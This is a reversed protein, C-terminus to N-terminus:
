FNYVYNFGGFREHESDQELFPTQSQFFFTLKHRNYSLEMGSYFIPNFRNEEIDYGQNQAEDIIYSYAVASANVSVSWAVGLGKNIKDIVLMSADEKLYPYHLNFNTIYNYGIRFTSGAFADVLFNGAQFGIHNFWDIHWKNALKKQWTIDGYRYLINASYSTGLQTDWGQPEDSGTIKHITKQVWEAGAEKGIVGLSLRFEQFSDNKITFLFFDISLYGVYPFDDYQPQTQTIDEPTFMYQSLSVGANYKTATIHFRDALSYLGQAYFTINDQKSKSSHDIWGISMGNTFHRDTKVFLDNYFQFYFQDAQLSLLYFLLALIIKKM